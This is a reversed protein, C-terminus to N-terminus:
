LELCMYVFLSKTSLRDILPFSKHEELMSILLFFNGNKNAAENLQSYNFAPCENHTNHTILALVDLLKSSVHCASSLAEESEPLRRPVKGVNM